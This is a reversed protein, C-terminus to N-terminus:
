GCGRKQKTKNQTTKKRALNTFMMLDYRIVLFLPFIIPHTNKKIENPEGCTREMPRVHPSGFSISNVAVPTYNFMMRDYPQLKGGTKAKYRTNRPLAPLLGPQTPSCPSRILTDPAM